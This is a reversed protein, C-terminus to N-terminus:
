SRLHGARSRCHALGILGLGFGALCTWLVWGYGSDQLRGYFPLLVVFAVFWFGVGVAVTQVGDVDLPEVPAVIYTRKGIAHRDPYENHPEVLRM